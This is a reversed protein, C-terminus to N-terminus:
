RYSRAVPPQRSRSNGAARPWRCHVSRCAMCHRSRVATGPAPREWCSVRRPSSEPKGPDRARNTNPVPHGSWWCSRCVADRQLHGVGVVHEAQFVMQDGADAEVPRLRLEVADRIDAADRRDAPDIVTRAHHDVLRARVCRDANGDAIGVPAGIGGVRQLDRRSQRYREGPAEVRCLDVQVVLAAAVQGAIVVVVM